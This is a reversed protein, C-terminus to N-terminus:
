ARTSDRWKISAETRNTVHYKVYIKHLHNHVASFSIGLEDAIEKYPLGKALGEMVATERETLAVLREAYPTEVAAQEIPTKPRLAVLISILCQAATFPKTLFQEGGAECAESLISADLLGSVFVIALWPVIAKLRRACEIGSMGPMRIDLLVVRAKVLGLGALASEGSSFSGVCRLEESCELINKSAVRVQPNDDVIAVPIKTPRPM